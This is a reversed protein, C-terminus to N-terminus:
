GRDIEVIEAVREGDEIAGTRDAERGVAGFGEGDGVDRDHDDIGVRGARREGRRRQAREVLEADRVEDEDVADVLRMAADAVQQRRQLRHAYRRQDRALHRDPIALLDASEDVEREFIREFVLRPLRGLPDFDRRVKLVALMFRAGVHEFLEGVM